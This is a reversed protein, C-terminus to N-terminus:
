DLNENFVNLNRVEEQLKKIEGEILNIKQNRLLWAIASGILFAGVLMIVIDAPASIFPKLFM